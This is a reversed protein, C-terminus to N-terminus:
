VKLANAATRWISSAYSVWIQTSQGNYLTSMNAADVQYLPGFYGKILPLLVGVVDEFRSLSETSGDCILSAVLQAISFCLSLALNSGEEVANTNNILYLFHGECFWCPYRRQSVGQFFSVWFVCIMSDAKVLLWTTSFSLSLLVATLLYFCTALRGAGVFQLASPGRSVQECNPWRGRASNRISTQRM